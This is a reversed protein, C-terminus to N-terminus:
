EPRNNKTITVNASMGPRLEHAPDDIVVETQFVQLVREERTQVSRPTIEGQRHIRRIVGTFDKEPFSDVRVKVKLGPQVLGLRAEPLYARVWFSGTRLLTVVPRGAAVLDGRELDLSEVLADVPAKIVTEYLQARILELRARAAEM